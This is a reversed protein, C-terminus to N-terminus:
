ELLKRIDYWDVVAMSYFGVNEVYLNQIFFGPLDLMTKFVVSLVLICISAKDLGSSRSLKMLRIYNDMVFFLSGPHPFIYIRRM